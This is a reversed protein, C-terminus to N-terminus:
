RGQAALQEAFDCFAPYIRAPDFMEHYVPLARAQMHRIEEPQNLVYQLAQTVSSAQGEEYYIGLQHQMLLNRVQGKLPTMIPLGHGLYEGVKNPYSLLFDPTSPYPLIGFSARQMLVHLEAASRWGMAMLCPDNQAAAQVMAELDGKGCIVIKLRAKDHAPLARIGELLAPIDIRHSLNSAFCGIIHGSQATIGQADWFCEAEKLADPEPKAANVTLHFAKDLATRPRQARLLAWDVFADTIGIIASAHRVTYTQGYQWARLLPKAVWATLGSVQERIVDPWMDRFDVAIPIHHRKAFWVAAAALEISPYGCIMVDPRPMTPATRLFEYANSIQSIIRSASMNKEYMRGHLLVIKYREQVSLTTTQEFRQIKRQHSVTSNWWVVEHGRDALHQALIGTRLLRPSGTDLPIEEGINILWVRM